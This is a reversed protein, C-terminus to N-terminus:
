RRAAPDVHAAETVPRPLVNAAFLIPVAAFGIVTVVAVAAALRRWFWNRDPNDIGATQTGSWLGHLIHLGLVTVAGVYIVVLWWAHFAGYTNAYVTGRVMATPHITFTTFQLIHFVVFALILVGSYRVTRAAITSRVRRIHHGSPKAARNRLWLQTIATVHLVLALILVGRETWLAFDHPLVPSGVTRLFHAYRDVAPHGGGAGELAKLNGLMHLVVFIALILGSVAAVYKKGITSHWLALLRHPRYDRVADLTSM